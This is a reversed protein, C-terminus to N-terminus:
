PVTVAVPPYSMSGEVHQERVSTVTYEYRQGSRATGDAFGLETSSGILASEVDGGGSRYIRYEVVRDSYTHPVSVTPPEDWILEVAGAAVAGTRVNAPPPPNMALDDDPSLEDLPGPVRTSSATTTPDPEPM